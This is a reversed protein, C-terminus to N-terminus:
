RPWGGSTTSRVGRNRMVRATESMGASSEVLAARSTFVIGLAALGRLGTGRLHSKGLKFDYDIVM